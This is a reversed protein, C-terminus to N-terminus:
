LEEERKEALMKRWKERKETDVPEEGNSLPVGLSGKEYNAGELQNLREESEPAVHVQGEPGVFSIIGNNTDYKGVQELRGTPINLGDTNERVTYTREGKGAEMGDAILWEGGVEGLDREEAAEQYAELHEERRREMNKERSEEKSQEWRERKEQDAPEWFKNSFPVGYRNGKELDSDELAQRREATEPAVHINGEGDIRALIGNNADWTEEDEPLPEQLSEFAEDMKVTKGEDEGRTKRLETDENIEIWGEDSLAEQKEASEEREEKEPEGEQTSEAEKNVGLGGERKEFNAM